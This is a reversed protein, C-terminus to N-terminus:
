PVSAPGRFRESPLFSIPAVSLDHSRPAISLARPEDLVNRTRPLRASMAAQAPTAARGNAVPTSSAGTAADTPAVAVCLLPHVDVASVDPEAIARLTPVCAPAGVGRFTDASTFPGIYRLTASLTLVSPHVCAVSHPQIFM